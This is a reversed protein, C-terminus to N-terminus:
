LLKQLLLALMKSAEARTARGAPDFQDAARGSIIGASKMEEVSDKAYDAILPEDSFGAAPTLSGPLKYNNKGTFRALMVALDQRSVPADPNFKGGYGQAIGQDAAWQVASLYWAGSKVDSFSSVAYASLDDGSLKALMQALEARTVAQNPSFKHDGAGNIIQRAGLFDAYEKYWGSADSWAADSYGISYASFHGTLFSVEGTAPNYVSQAVTAAIGDSPLYNVVIREPREATDPTYSVSVKAHGGQFSDITRGDVQVSFEYVPRNAAASQVQGPLSSLAPKAATITVKEGARGAIGSLAASDLAVTALPTNLTLAGAGSSGIAAVSAKPITMEVSTADAPAEVRIEIPSNQRMGAKALAEAIRAESISASARGNGDVGAASAVIVGTDTVRADGGGNATSTSALPSGLSGGPSSGPAPAANVEVSKASEQGGRWATVTFYHVTGNSLGDFTYTALTASGAPLTYNGSATGAYISYKEAGETETWNLTVKGDGASAKLGTPAKLAEWKAYLTQNATVILPFAAPKTLEADKYWGTIVYGARVTHPAQDLINSSYLLKRDEAASGGNAEFSVTYSLLDNLKVTQLDVEPQLYYVSAQVSKAKWLENKLEDTDLAAPLEPAEAAAIGKSLGSLDALAGRDQPYAFVRLDIVEGAEPSNAKILIRDGDASATYNDFAGSLNNFASAVSQAFDASTLTLYAHFHATFSAGFSNVKDLPKGNKLFLFHVMGRTASPLATLKEYVSATVTASGAIQAIKDLKIGNPVFLEAKPFNANEGGAGKVTTLTKGGEALSQIVLKNSVGAFSFHLELHLSRQDSGLTLSKSKVGGSFSIDLESLVAEASDITVPRDYLVDFVVYQDDTGNLAEGGHNTSVNYGTVMPANKDQEGLPGSETVSVPVPYSKVSEVSDKVATVAFYYVAGQPLNAIKYTAAGINSAIPVAEYNDLASGRYVSYSDAGDVASWVLTVVGNDVTAQLDAPAGPAEAAAK